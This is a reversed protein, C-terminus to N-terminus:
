GNRSRTSKYWKNGEDLIGFLFFLSSSGIWKIICVYVSIDCPYERHLQRLCVFIDNKRKCFNSFLLAFLDQRPHPSYNTATSPLLLHPFSMPTHNYQFYQTCM